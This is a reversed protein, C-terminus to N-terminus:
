LKFVLISAIEFQSLLIYLQIGIMTSLHSQSSKWDGSQVSEPHGPFIILLSGFTKTMRGPYRM